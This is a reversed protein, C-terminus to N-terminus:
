ELLRDLQALLEECKLLYLQYWTLQYFLTESKPFTPYLKRMYIFTSEDKQTTFPGFFVEYKGENV